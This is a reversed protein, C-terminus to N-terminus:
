FLKRTRLAAHLSKFIHPAHAIESVLSFGLAATRNLSVQSCIGNFVVPNVELDVYM